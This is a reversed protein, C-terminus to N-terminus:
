SADFNHEWDLKCHRCRWFAVPIGGVDHKAAVLEVQQSRCRPCPTRTAIARVRLTSTVVDRCLADLQVDSNATLHFGHQYHRAAATAIARQMADGGVEAVSRKADAEGVPATVQFGLAQLEPTTATVQAVGYQLIMRLAFALENAQHSHKIPNYYMMDIYECFPATEANRYWTHAGEAGDSPFNIWGQVRACADVIADDSMPLAEPPVGQVDMEKRVEANWATIAGLETDSVIEWQKWYCSGCYAYHNEPGSMVNPMLRIPGSCKPCCYASHRMSIARVIGM